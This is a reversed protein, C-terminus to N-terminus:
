VGNVLRGPFAQIFFYKLSGPLENGHECSGAVPWTSLWNTVSWVRCATEKLIIKLSGAMQAYSNWATNESRRTYAYVAPWVRPWVFYKIKQSDTWVPTNSRALLVVFCACEQLIHGLMRVPLCVAWLNYGLQRRLEPFYKAVLFFYQQQETGMVIRITPCKTHSHVRQRSRASKNLIQMKKTREKFHKPPVTYQSTSTTRWTCQTLLLLVM